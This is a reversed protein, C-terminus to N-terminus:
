PATQTSECFQITNGSNISASDLLVISGQLNGPDNPNTIEIGVGCTRFTAKQLLASWGGPGAYATTGISSTYTRSIQKNARTRSALRMVLSKFM